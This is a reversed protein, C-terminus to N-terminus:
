GDIWEDMQLKAHRMGVAALERQNVRTAAHKMGLRAFVVNVKFDLQRLRKNTLHFLEDHRGFRWTTLRAHFFEAM